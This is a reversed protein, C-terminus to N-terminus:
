EEREAQMDQEVARIDADLSSAAAKLRIIEDQFKAYESAQIQDLDIHM